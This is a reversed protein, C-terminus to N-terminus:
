FRRAAALSRRAPAEGTTPERRSLYLLLLLLIPLIQLKFRVAAGLNYYSVFGYMTAWTIVLVIAWTVLPERFHSRRVRMCALAALSLLFFGELGAVIGFPNLVEGPLPRFLATFAGIPAFRLLSGLGTFQVIQAQGSGGEWGQSLADVRSYVDLMTELGFQESFSDVAAKLAFATLVLFALRATIGRLGYFIFVALPILLIPASWLRIYASLAIGASIPLLYVWWHRSRRLGIVGYVYLSIGLLQVPDKGLISSWFLISPFLGLAYLLRVDERGRFRVAARYTLYISILGVMAFSLKMAHYSPPLVSSHLWTLGILNETGRGWGMEGLPSTATRSLDFYMYADLGYNWEYLLMFGLAVLCKAGWLILLPRKDRAPAPWILISAGLVLAWLLGELYDAEIEPQPIRFGWARVLGVFTPTAMGVGLALLLPWAADRFRGPARNM